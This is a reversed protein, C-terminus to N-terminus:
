YSSIIHNSDYLKENVTIEFHQCREKCLNQQQDLLTLRQVTTCSIVHCSIPLIWESMMSGVWHSIGLMRGLKSEGYRQKRLDDYLSKV